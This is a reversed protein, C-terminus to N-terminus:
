PLGNSEELDEWRDDLDDEDVPDWFRWSPQNVLITGILSKVHEGVVVGSTVLIVGGNLEFVTFDLLGHTKLLFGVLAGAVNIEELGLTVSPPQGNEDRETDDRLVGAVSQEGVVSIQDVTTGTDLRSTLTETKVDSVSEKGEDNGDGRGSENVLSTTAWEEQDTGGTHDDHEDEPGDGRGDIFVGILGVLGSTVNLDWDDPDETDEVGDRPRTEQNGVGNFDQWETKTSLTDHDHIKSDLGDQSNTVLGVWDCPLVNWMVPVESQEVGDPNAEFQDKNVENVNFGLSWSKLFDCSDEITLVSNGV